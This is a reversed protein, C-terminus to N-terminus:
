RDHWLREQMDCMMANIAAAVDDDQAPDVPSCASGPREPQTNSYAAEQPRSALQPGSSHPSTYRMVDDCRLSEDAGTGACPLCRALFMWCGEANDQTSGDRAQVRRCRTM